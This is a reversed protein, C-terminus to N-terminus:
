PANGFPPRPQTPAYVIGRVGGGPWVMRVGLYETGNRNGSQNGRQNGFQNAVVGSLGTSNGPYAAQAPQRQPAPPTAQQNTNTVSAKKRAASQVLQAAIAAREREDRASEAREFSAAQEANYGYQQRLQDPLNSFKVRAGGGPFLLCVSDPFVKSVECDRFTRGDLTTVELAMLSPAVMLLMWFIKM